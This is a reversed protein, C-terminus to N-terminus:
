SYQRLMYMLNVVVYEDDLRYAIMKEAHFKFNYCKKGMHLDKKDGEARGDEGLSLWTCVLYFPRSSPLSAPTVIDETPLFTHLLSVM